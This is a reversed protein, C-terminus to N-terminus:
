VQCFSLLITLDFHALDNACTREPSSNCHACQIIRNADGRGILATYKAPRGIKRKHTGHTCGYVDAKGAAAKCLHTAIRMIIITVEIDKQRRQIWPIQLKHIHPYSRFIQIEKYNRVILELSVFFDQNLVPPIDTITTHIINTGVWGRKM